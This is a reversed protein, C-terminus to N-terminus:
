APQKGPAPSGTLREFWRRGLSAIEHSVHPMTALRLMVVDSYLSDVQDARVGQQPRFVAHAPAWFDVSRPLELGRATRIDLAVIWVRHRRMLASRTAAENRAYVERDGIYHVHCYRVRYREVHTYLVFCAKDGDRILLSGVRYPRHDRLIKREEASLSQEDIAEDFRFEIGPQEGRKTLMALPQPLLLKMQLDLDVFGLRKTLARVRDCPTFHTITYDDLGLLPRMLAISRGRHDDHVWWTHLNCFKRHQGDIMRRSFAMAMMGVVAGDSVLAYGSHDEDKDWQYDFVNRWDAEDSLPDDDHLFAEYLGPFLDSRIKVLEVM